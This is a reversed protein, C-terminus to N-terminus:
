MAEELLTLLSAETLARPNTATSHDALAAAAVNSLVQTPVGMDALRKPM